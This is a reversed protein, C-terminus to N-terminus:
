QQEEISVLWTSGTMSGRLFYIKGQRVNIMGQGAGAYQVPAGQVNFVAVAEATYSHQGPKPVTITLRSNPYEQNVTLNGVDKGDVLITVQESLEGDGLEDTLTFEVPEPAGAIVVSNNDNIRTAPSGQMAGGFGLCIFLVGVIVSVVRVGIGVKPVKLEKVEFGGGLVGIFVLLGGFAFAAIEINM